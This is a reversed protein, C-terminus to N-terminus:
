EDLSTLLIERITSIDQKLQTVLDDSSDFRIVDRVRQLFDVQLRRGYLDNDYDLVHVEVKSDGDVEFTPNPGIHIAVQYTTADIQTRGAYVGPAPIVVDMETLNATPFGIVRGRQAGSAVLGRIRHPRGLLQAAAFVDGESLLTRISTSSIMRDTIVTPEAVTLQIGAADCMLGLREVNGGRDRGFFFNPGEVMARAQLYKLVLSDFFEDATMDLFCRTTECVILADIGLDDMLEARREIWTLRTPALDPRLITAPHPDLVVAVAPGGIKDALRKVHMLLEAHGRHVGDFNGIAVVGGQVHDLREIAPLGAEDTTGTTGLSPKPPINTLPVIITM